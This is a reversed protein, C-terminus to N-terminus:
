WELITRRRRKKLLTFCSLKNLYFLTFHPLLARLTPPALLSHAGFYSKKSGTRVLCGWIELFEELLIRIVELGCKELGERLGCSNTAATHRQRHRKDVRFRSDL